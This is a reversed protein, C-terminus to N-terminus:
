PASMHLWSITLIGCNCGLIGTEDNACCCCASRWDEELGLWIAILEQILEALHLVLDTLNSVGTMGIESEVLTELLQRCCDQRKEHSRLCDLDVCHWEDGIVQGTAQLCRQCRREVAPIKQFKGVENETNMGGLFTEEFISLNQRDFWHIGLTQIAWTNQLHVALM